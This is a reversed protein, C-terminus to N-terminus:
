KYKESSSGLQESWERQKRMSPSRRTASTTTEVSAVPTYMNGGTKHTVKTKKLSMMM